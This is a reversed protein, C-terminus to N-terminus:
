KVIVIQQTSPAWIVNAGLKESIYRAPVMTRSEWIIPTVDFGDIVEDIAMRMTVSNQVITVVRTAETWSVQAGMAESVVRLPIMTRSNVLVPTVDNTIASGNLKVTKSNIQLEIKQVNADYLLVYSGSEDVLATFTKKTENYNGGMYTLVINGNADKTVRALTLKSTDAVKSLASNTVPVTVTLPDVFSTLAEGSKKASISVASVNGGVVQVNSGDVVVATVQNILSSSVTSKSIKVDNDPSTVVVSSLSAGGGGGFSSSSSGSSSSDTNSGNNEETADDALEVFAFSSFHILTFSAYNKDISLIPQIFDYGDDSKHYHLVRFNEPKTVSDPIPVTIYVPVKLTGDDNLDVGTLDMDVQTLNKYLEPIDKAATAKSVTLTVASPMTTIASSTTSANLLAGLIRVDSAVGADAKVDIKLTLEAANAYSEELVSINKRVSDDTLMALELDAAGIAAVADSIGAADDKDVDDLKEQVTAAIEKINEGSSMASEEGNYASTIDDSVATVTFAWQCEGHKEEYEAMRTLAWEDYYTVYGDSLATLSTAPHSTTLQIRWNDLNEDYVYYETTYSYTGNVPVWCPMNDNSWYLGTTVGLQVNPKEYHWVPSTAIESDSYTVDDDGQAYLTFYYDGSDSFVSHAVGAYAAILGDKGYADIFNTEYCQEGNCYLVCKYTGECGDVANWIMTGYKETTGDGWALGTPTDLQPAAMAVTSCLLVMAVALLVTAFTKKM